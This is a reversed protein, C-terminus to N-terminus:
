AQKEKSLPEQWCELYGYARRLFQVFLLFSGIPIVALLPARPPKLMTTMLINRQFSDWVIQTGYIILFSCLIAGIISTIIGLLAQVRPGFKDTLIEVKVHGEKKLRKVIKKVPEQAEFPDVLEMRILDDLTAEVALSCCSGVCTKCMEQKYKLWTGPNEIQVSYRKNM